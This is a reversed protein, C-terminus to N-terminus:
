CAESKHLPKCMTHRISPKCMASASAAGTKLCKERNIVRRSITQVNVHSPKCMAELHNACENYTTQVNTRFPKCMARVHNACQKKEKWCYSQFSTKIGKLLTM